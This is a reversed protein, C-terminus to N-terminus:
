NRQLELTVCVRENFVQGRHCLRATVIHDGIELVDRFLSSQVNRFISHAEIPSVSFPLVNSSFKM